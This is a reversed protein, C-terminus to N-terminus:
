YGVLFGVLSDISFTQHCCRILVRLFCLLEVANPPVVLTYRVVFRRCEEVKELHDSSLLQNSM